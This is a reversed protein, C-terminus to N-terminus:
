FLEGAGVLGIKGFAFVKTLRCTCKRDWFVTLWNTDPLPRSSRIGNMEVGNEVSVLYSLKSFSGKNKPNSTEFFRGCNQLIQGGFHNLFPGCLYFTFKKKKKANHRVNARTKNKKKVVSSMMEQKHRM